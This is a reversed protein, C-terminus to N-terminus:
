KTFGALIGPLTAPEWGAIKEEVRAIERKLSSLESKLDYLKSNLFKEFSPNDRKVTGVRFIYVEDRTPLDLILEELKPVRPRLAAVYKEAGESSIEWATKGTGFCEGHFQHGEVSYGHAAIKKSDNIKVNRGCVPCTGTSELTRPPTLSPTESPKRTKTILAKATKYLLTHVPSWFRILDECKAALEGTIRGIKRYKKEFSTFSYLGHPLIDYLESIGPFTANSTRKWGSGDGSNLCLDYIVKVERDLECSLWYKFDSFDVNYVVGSSVAAELRLLTSSTRETVM